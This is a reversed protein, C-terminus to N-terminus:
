SPLVPNTHIRPRHQSNTSIKTCTISISCQPSKSSTNQSTRIDRHREASISSRPRPYDFTIPDPITNQFLVSNPFAPPGNSLISESHRVPNTHFGPRRAFIQEIEANNRFSLVVVGKRMTGVCGWRLAGNRQHKSEPPLVHISVKARARRARRTCSATPRNRKLVCATIPAARARRYRCGLSVSVPLSPM